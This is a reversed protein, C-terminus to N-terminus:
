QIVLLLGMLLIYKQFVPAKPAGSDNVIAYLYDM